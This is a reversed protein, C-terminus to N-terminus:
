KSRAMRIEAITKSLRRDAQLKDIEKINKARWMAPDNATARKYCELLRLAQSPTLLTLVPSPKVAGSAIAQTLGLRAFQREEAVLELYISNLFEFKHPYLAKCWRAAEEIEEQRRYALEAEREYLLSGMSDM